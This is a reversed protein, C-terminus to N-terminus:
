QTRASSTQLPFAQSQVFARRSASNRCLRISLENSAPFTTEAGNEVVLAREIRSSSLRLQFEAIPDAASMDLHTYADMVAEDGQHGSSRSFALWPLLGIFM